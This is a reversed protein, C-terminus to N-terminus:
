LCEVLADADDSRPERTWFWVRRGASEVGGATGSPPPGLSTMAANVRQRARARAEETSVFMVIAYNGHPSKLEAVDELWVPLRARSSAFLENGQPRFGAERGCAIFASYTRQKTEGCGSALLLLVLFLAVFTSRV